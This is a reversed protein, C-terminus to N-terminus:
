PTKDEPLPEDPAALLEDAAQLVYQPLITM